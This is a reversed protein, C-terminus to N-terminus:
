RIINNVWEEVKVVKVQSRRSEFEIGRIWRSRPNLPEFAKETTWPPRKVVAELQRHM